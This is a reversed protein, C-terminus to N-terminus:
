DQVKTESIEAQTASPEAVPEQKEIVVQRMAEIVTGPAIEIQVRDADLGKITGFVGASMLVRDGVELEAQLLQSERQRKRTPRIVIAWFGLLAVLIVLYQM